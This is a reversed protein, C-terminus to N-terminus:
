RVLRQHLSPCMGSQSLENIERKILDRLLPFKKSLDERMDRVGKADSQSLKNIEREILDRVFPIRKTLDERMNRVGEFADGLKSQLSHVHTAHSMAVDEAEGNARKLEEITVHTTRSVAVDEAECIARKLEEITVHTTRSMAVDEVQPQSPKQIKLKDEQRYRSPDLLTPLAVQLSERNANELEEITKAAERVEHELATLESDRLYIESVLEQEKEEWQIKENHLQMEMREAEKRWFESENEAESSMTSCTSTTEVDQMPKLSDPGVMM